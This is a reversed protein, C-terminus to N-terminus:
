SRLYEVQVLDGTKVLKGVSKKSAGYRTGERSFLLYQNTNSDARLNKATVGHKRLLIDANDIVILSDQTEQLITRITSESLSSDIWEFQFGLEGIKQNTKLAKLLFTKGTGSNGGLAVIPANLEINFNTRGYSTIVKNVIQRAM